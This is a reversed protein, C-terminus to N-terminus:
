RRALTDAAWARALGITAWATGWYRYVYERSPSREKSFLASPVTWTGDEGQTGLLYAIARRAAPHAPTLGAVRLAYLTEGTSFANSPDGALSSWGGDANQQELLRHLVVDATARTGHRAEVMLRAAHWENSVGSPSSRLWALARELRPAETGDLALLTWMTAVADSEARPRRQSPFQGGAEWSGDARQQAATDRAVPGWGEGGGFLLESSSVPHLDSPNGTAYARARAQLNAIRDLAVPVGARRAERHSWLAFGVQHCSVCGHDHQFTIRGEMWADGDRELFPLAREIARRANGDPTVAVVPLTVAPTAPRACAALVALWPPALRKM